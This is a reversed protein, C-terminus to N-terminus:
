FYGCKWTLDIIQNQRDSDDKRVFRVRDIKCYRVTLDGIQLLARCIPSRVVM